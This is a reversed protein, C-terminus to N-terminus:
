AGGLAQVGKFITAGAAILIVVQLWRFFRQGEIRDFVRSGVFGGLVIFPTLVALQILVTMTIHGAVIMVGFRWSVIVLGLLLVTGRLARAPLDLVRLLILILFIGGAGTIGSILGALGSMISMPLWGTVDHTTAFKLAAGSIETLAVLGLTIGLLIMLPAPDVSGYIWVGLLAGAFNAPVIMRVLRWDGDRLGPGVFQAQSAINAVLALVVAVHPGIIISGLLISPSLSGVGFAGKIVFALFFITALAAFQWVAWDTLADVIM